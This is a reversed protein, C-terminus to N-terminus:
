LRASRDGRAFGLLPEEMGRGLAIAKFVEGMESPQLLKHVAAAARLYDTTGPKLAALLDILGCNILFSAQDTYGLLALGAAYGAEAVATFDVHATIDNLGPHAFPDAHARHRRHCMLTGEVREPHYYEHRPFGYDIFLMVGHELRKALSLVLERAAMGIESVYGAPMALSCAADRLPGPPLPRDQWVFAGTADLGVGQEVPGTALWRIRHVPLADLVENGLILGKHKHPLRDLWTIRSLLKPAEQEFLAQQRARLDASVELMFYREPLSDLAELACMLDLALRGSGPGLELIDGGTAKLVQAAQRALARGFLPTLEPATVFDGGAGFKCAGAAYYGLGPTYLALEMYRAFSIWGCAAIEARIKAALQCSVAQAEVDTAPPPPLM